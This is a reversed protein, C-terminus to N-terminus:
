PVPVTEPPDPYIGGLANRVLERTDPPFDNKTIWTLFGRDQEALTGLRKDQNKGFNIVIEGNKWKLKGARDAWSPDRPNCYEDLEDMTDPLDDYRQLQAEMVRATALVDDMAGHAGLHMENCYFGLAASLDRPEKRHYIRQADLVRRGEVSFSAGVRECENELLPIDFHLINFGGLDCGNLVAVVQSVVASFPPCDKVDDNTIGHVETSERPIAIEPNVRFAHEERTGDPLIKLIALDIIRDAKRNVGTSEIDFVALPKDLKLKM